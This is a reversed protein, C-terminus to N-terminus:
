FQSVSLALNASRPDLFASLLPAPIWTPEMKGGDSSTGVAAINAICDRWTKKLSSFFFNFLFVGGEIIKKKYM